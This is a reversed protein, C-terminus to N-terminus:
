IKLSFKYHIHIKTGVNVVVCYSNVKSISMIQKTYM